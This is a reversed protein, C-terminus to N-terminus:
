GLFPIRRLALGNTITRKRGKTIVLGLCRVTKHDRKFSKLGSTQNGASKDEQRLLMRSVTQYAALKLAKVRM